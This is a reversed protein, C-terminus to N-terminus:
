PFFRNLRPSWNSLIQYTVTGAWDALMMATIEREKQRGLVVVKDGRRVDPIETVDVMTADM